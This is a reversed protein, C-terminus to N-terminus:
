KPFYRSKVNNTLKLKTMLSFFMITLTTFILPAIMTNFFSSPFQFLCSFFTKILKLDLCIIYHGMGRKPPHHSTVRSQSENLPNESMPPSIEFYLDLSTCISM